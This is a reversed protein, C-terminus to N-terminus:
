KQNYIIEAQEALILVADTYMQSPNYRFIAREVSGTINKFHKLYNAVSNINHEMNYIDDGVFWRNLSYPIFQAYAMAGAYSSKLEFIDVNNRDAWILLEELQARAFPARYNESYMSVYANFPNFRGIVKGYGSEIGIIATIVFKPIGYEDEAAQLESAYTSMFEPMRDIKDQYGFLRKYDEMSDTRFEAARRFRSTIDDYLEFRPDVLYPRIEVGKGDFYSVLSQVGDPIDANNISHALYENSQGNVHLSGTFLLISIFAFIIRQM